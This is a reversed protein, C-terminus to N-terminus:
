TLSQSLETERNQTMEYITYHQKSNFAEFVQELIPTWGPGKHPVFLLLMAKSSNKVSWGTLM